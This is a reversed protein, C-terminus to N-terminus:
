NLILLVYFGIIYNIIIIVYVYLLFRNYIYKKKFTTSIKKSPTKHIYFLNM